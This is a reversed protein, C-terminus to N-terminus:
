IELFKIRKSALQLPFIKSKKMALTYIYLQNQTKIKYRSVRSFKKIKELLNKTAEKPNGTYLIM